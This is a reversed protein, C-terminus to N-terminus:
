KFPITSLRTSVTVIGGGTINRTRVQQVFEFRGLGALGEVHSGATPHANYHCSNRLSNWAPIAISIRYDLKIKQDFALKSGTLSIGL